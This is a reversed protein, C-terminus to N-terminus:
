AIERMKAIHQEAIAVSADSRLRRATSIPPARYYEPIYDLGFENKGGVRGLCAARFEPLSPPWPESWSDLGRKIDDGSLGALGRSWEDVVQEEIGEIASVWKHLYKAQLKKFLAAVWHRPLEANKSTADPSTPSNTQLASAARNLLAQDM